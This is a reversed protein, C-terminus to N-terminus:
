DRIKNYDCQKALPITLHDGCNYIGDSNRHASSESRQKPALYAVSKCIREHRCHSKDDDTQANLTCHARVVRQTNDHAHREACNYALKQM